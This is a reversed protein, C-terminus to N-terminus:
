AKAKERERVRDIGRRMDGGVRNWDGRIAEDSRTNPYNAIPGSTGFSGIQALGHVFGSIVSNSSVSRRADRRLKSDKSM